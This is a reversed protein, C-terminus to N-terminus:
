TQGLVGGVVVPGVVISYDGIGRSRGIETKCVVVDGPGLWWRRALVIWGVIVATM